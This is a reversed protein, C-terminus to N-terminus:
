PQQNLSGFGEGLVEYAETIFIFARSDAQRVIEKLQMVEQAGLICLLMPKDAGSYGGTAQVVTVGRELQAMLENKVREHEDTIVYCAKQHSWGELVLDMVKACVFISILAYLSYEVQIFFGAAAVVCFDIFFLFAGVSIYPKKAHVMRAAMDSGGTTAGGRLILGLGAGQLVGGFVCALLLNDTLPKLPLVDILVSFLVTAVLSRFVFVKGMARFGLLFLPVNLLLAVTGVPTKLLYNLITAVGTVGGAAIANPVLFMPYAAAGVLCGLAIQAYASVRHNQLLKPLKKQAM